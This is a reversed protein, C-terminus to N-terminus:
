YLMSQFVCTLEGQNDYGVLKLLSGLRLKWFGQEPRPIRSEVPWPLIRPKLRITKSRSSIGPLNKEEIWSYEVSCGRDIVWRVSALFTPSCCPQSQVSLLISMALSISPMLLSVVFTMKSPCPGILLLQAAFAYCLKMAEYEFHWRHRFISGIKQINTNVYLM